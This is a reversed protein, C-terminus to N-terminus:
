YCLLCLSLAAILITRLLMFDHVIKISLPQDMTIEKIHSDVGTSVYLTSNLATM